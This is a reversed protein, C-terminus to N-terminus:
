FVKCKENASTGYRLHCYEIHTWHIDELFVGIALLGLLITLAVQWNKM